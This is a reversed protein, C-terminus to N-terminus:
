ILEWEPMYIDKYNQPGTPGFWKTPAIVKQPNKSLWAAWWSFTSNAMIFYKFQQLLIITNIENENELIYINSENLEPVEKIVSNWFRPDDSTLLFFPNNVINSMKEIALKYYEIPLPGHFNIIDPTRLYDTRRAHVVIVNEKKCILNYYKNYVYNFLENNPKFLSKLELQITPHDFYKPSQLYGHLYINNCGIKPINSFETASVEYWHDIPQQINDSLFMNCKKLISDWYLPRGDDEIKNKLIKLEINNKISYSYASAIQFMQNGLGGCVSIFVSPEMEKDSLYNNLELSHM